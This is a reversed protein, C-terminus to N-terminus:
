PRAAKAFKAVAGKPDLREVEISAPASAQPGAAAVLDESRWGGGLAKYLQVYDTSVDASAGAVSDQTSLQTRQTELVTQFDVLGSAYEQHALLAATAAADAANRLNVLRARDDRLAVLANEVDQLAVLVTSRYQHLSQDLVAQQAQERARGAGADFIPLSVGALLSSVVSAGNTLAGLSLSSLGFSGGISFSPLRAAHSQRLRALEAGVQYEAARVDARQRLTDAPISLALTEPADPAPAPAALVAILAEPPEGDLVALAHMTQAITTQLPPLGANTQEVSARAQETDISTALGAQERWQAIQLTDQQSALNAQAIGLRTQASRLLIYDIGVEAAVQVQIDGLNAASAWATAEAANLGNRNAGFVDLTWNADIGTQFSNTESGQDGEGSTSHRATASGGLSPWLSAAAVDRLARKACQRDRAWFAQIPKCQAASL